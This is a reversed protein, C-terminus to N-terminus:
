LTQIRQKPINLTDRKDAPQSEADVKLAKTFDEAEKLDNENPRGRSIGGFLKLLGNTDFGRCSFEGVIHFGKERLSRRLAQHGSPLIFSGRTSFIFVNKKLPPMKEVLEFLTKDHKGFYIGSGFCILDYKSLSSVDVEDPKALEGGLVKAIVDAVKKTNGHHYSSYIVLTRM